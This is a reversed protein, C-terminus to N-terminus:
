FIGYINERVKAKTREEQEEYEKILKEREAAM